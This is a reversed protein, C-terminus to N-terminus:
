KKRRRHKKKRKPQPQTRSKRHKGVRQGASGGGPMSQGALMKRRIKALEEESYELGEEVQEEGVANELEKLRREEARQAEQRERMELNKRTVRKGVPSNIYDYYSQSFEPEAKKGPKRTAIGWKELLDLVTSQKPTFACERVILKKVSDMEWANKGKTGINLGAQKPTKNALILRHIAKEEEGTLLRSPKRGRTKGVVAGNGEARYKAMLLSVYQRSVGFEGALVTQKEGADVRNIITLRDEPSLKGQKKQKEHSDETSGPPM